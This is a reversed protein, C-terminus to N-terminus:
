EEVLTTAVSNYEAESLLKRQDLDCPSLEQDIATPNSEGISDTDKTKIENTTEAHVTEAVVSAELIKIVFLYNSSIDNM